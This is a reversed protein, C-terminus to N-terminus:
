KSPDGASPLMTAGDPATVTVAPDYQINSVNLNFSVDVPTASATDSAGMMAPNISMAFDLIAQKVRSDALDVFQDFTLSTNQFMMVLMPGMQALSEDGSMSGAAGMMQSFGESSLLSTLDVNVQFHAQNNEDALRSISIFQNPDMESLASMAEGMAAMAEPDESMEGSMLEAPDVPIPAMSSLGSMADDLSQGLWGSGDGLNFYVIGDVIRFQMDVPMSEAGMNASGSLSIDAVPMGASDMAVAGAGSLAVNVDGDPSGTVNVDVTFDFSLSDADMNPSSFLAFDEASLGFTEQALAFPAFALLAALLTLFLTLRFKRPM